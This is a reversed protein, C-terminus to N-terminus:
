QNSISYAVPFVNQIAEKEAEKEWIELLEEERRKIEEDAMRELQQHLKGTEEEHIQKQAEMREIIAKKEGEYLRIITSIRLELATLSQLLFKLVM